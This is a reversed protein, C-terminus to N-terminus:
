RRLSPRSLGLNVRLNHESVADLDSWLKAMDKRAAQGAKGPQIGFCGFGIERTMAPFKGAPVERQYGLYLETFLFRAKLEAEVMWAQSSGIQRPRVFFVPGQMVDMFWQDAREAIVTLRSLRLSDVVTDTDTRWHRAVKDPDVKVLFRPRLDHPRSAPEDFYSCRDSTDRVHLSLRETLAGEGDPSFEALRHLRSRWMWDPFLSERLPRISADLNSKWHTVTVLSGVQDRGLNGDADKVMLVQGPTLFKSGLDYTLRVSVHYFGSVSPLSDAETELDNDTVATVLSDLDFM